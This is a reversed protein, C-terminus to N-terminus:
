ASGALIMPVVLALPWMRKGSRLLGFGAWLERRKGRSTAAFTVIIVGIVPLLASLMKNIGMHPMAIAVGLAMSFILALFITVERLPRSM